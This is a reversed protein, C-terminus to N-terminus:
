RPDIPVLQKPSAPSEGLRGLIEIGNNRETDFRLGGDAGLSWTITVPQGATRKVVIPEQNVVLYGGSAVGIQPRLPDAPRHPYPGHACAALLLAVLATLSLRLM